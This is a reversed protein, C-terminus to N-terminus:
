KPQVGLKVITQADTIGVEPRPASPNRVPASGASNNVEAESKIVGPSPGDAQASVTTILTCNTKHQSWHKGQCARDCYYVIKCRSCTLLRNDDPQVKKKCYSCCNPDHAKIAEFVSTASIFFNHACKIATELEKLNTTPSKLGAIEVTLTSGKDFHGYDVCLFKCEEIYLILKKDPVYIWVRLPDPLCKSLEALLEDLSRQFTGIVSMEAVRGKIERNKIQYLHYFAQRAPNGFFSHIVKPNILDFSSQMTTDTLPGSRMLWKTPDFELNVKPQDM